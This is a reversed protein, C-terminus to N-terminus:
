EELHFQVDCAVLTASLYRLGLRTGGPIIIPGDPPFFTFTSQEHVSFMHKRVNGSPEGTFTKRVTTQIAEAAEPSQKEMSASDDSSTGAGDQVVLDFPLPAVGATVGQPMVTVSKLKVRQHTPAEFQALTEDQAAPTRNINYSFDFASM